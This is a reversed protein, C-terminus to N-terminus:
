LQDFLALHPYDKLDLLNSIKFEEISNNEM